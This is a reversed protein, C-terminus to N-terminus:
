LPRVPPMSSSTLCVTSSRWHRPLHPWLARIPALLQLAVTMLWNRLHPCVPRLTPASDQVDLEIQAGNMSKIGGNANVYDACLQIGQLQVNGYYSTAGSLPLLVGVKVTDGTPEAAGSGSGTPANGSAAGGGCSALSLVMVAALLISLLKKM